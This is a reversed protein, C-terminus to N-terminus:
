FAPSNEQPVEIFCLDAIPFNMQRRSLKQHATGTHPLFLPNVTAITNTYIIESVTDKEQLFTKGQSILKSVQQFLSSFPM